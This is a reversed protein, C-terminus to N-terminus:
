WLVIWVCNLEPQSHRSTEFVGEMSIEQWWTFVCFIVFFYWIGFQFWCSTLSYFLSYAGFQFNAIENSTSFSYVRWPLRIKKKKCIYISVPASCSLWCVDRTVEVFNAFLCHCLEHRPSDLWWTSQLVCGSSHSSKCITCDM